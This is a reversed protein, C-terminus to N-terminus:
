VFVLLIVLVDSCPCPDSVFAPYLYGASVMM